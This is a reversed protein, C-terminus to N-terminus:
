RRPRRSSLGPGHDAGAPTSRATPMHAFMSAWEGGPSRANATTSRRNVVPLLRLLPGARRTAPQDLISNIIWILLWPLYIAIGCDHGLTHECLFSALELILSLAEAKRM